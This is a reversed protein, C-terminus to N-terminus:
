EEFGTAEPKFKVQKAKDRVVSVDTDDFGNPAKGAIELTIKM